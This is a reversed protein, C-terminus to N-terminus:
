FRITSWRASWSSSASCRSCTSRSSSASRRVLLNLLWLGFFGGVAGLPVSLIIVFPYLWSEFLAAMVLYTIVLALLLNWKMADWAQRLKDATGSLNIAYLGDNIQGSAALPEIIKAQIRDIAEELPM